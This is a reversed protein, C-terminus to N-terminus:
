LNVGAFQGQTFWDEIAQMVLKWDGKSPSLARMEERATQDERIFHKYATFDANTLIAM